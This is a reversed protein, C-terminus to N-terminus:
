QRDVLLTSRRQRHNFLFFFQQHYFVVRYRYPRYLVLLHFPLQDSFGIESVPLPGNFSTLHIAARNKDTIDVLDLFKLTKLCLFRIGDFSIGLMTRRIFILLVHVLVFSTLKTNSLAILLLDYRIHTIYVVVTRLCTERSFVTVNPITCLM